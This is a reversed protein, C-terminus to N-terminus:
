GLKMVVSLCQPVQLCQTHTHYHGQILEELPPLETAVHGESLRGGTLQMAMTDLYLRQPFIETAKLRNVTGNQPYQVLATIVMTINM